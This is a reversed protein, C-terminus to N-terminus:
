SASTASTKSSTIVHRHNIYKVILIGAVFTYKVFCKFETGSSKIQILQGILKEYALGLNIFKWGCVDCM